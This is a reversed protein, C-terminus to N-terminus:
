HVRSGLWKKLTQITKFSDIKWSHPKRTFQPFITSIQFRLLLQENECWRQVPPIWVCLYAEAGTVITYKYKHIFISQIIYKYIYIYRIYIYKKRFLFLPLYVHSSPSGQYTLKYLIRRCHLLGRNSKQTPFIGQLLSFSGVGTNQGPSNWPSYLGHPWLSAPMVSHSERETENMYTIPSGRHNLHYLIQRCHLLGPNSGQTPIIRQLPDHCGVATNKGPSDGHVSSGPPNCDMPDWVSRSLACCM